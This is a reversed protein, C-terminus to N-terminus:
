VPAQNFLAASGEADNCGRASGALHTVAGDTLSVTVLEHQSFDSVVAFKGDNSVAVGWPFLLATAPTPASEDPEESDRADTGYDIKGQM